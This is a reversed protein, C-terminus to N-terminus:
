VIRLDLADIQSLLEPFLKKPMVLHALEIGHLCDVLARLLYFLLIPAHHSEHPVGLAVVVFAFVFFFVYV